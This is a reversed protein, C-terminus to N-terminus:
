RAPVQSNGRSTTIRSRDGPPILTTLGFHETRGDRLAPRQATRCPLAVEQGPTFGAKGIAETILDLAARNHELDQAFGGEDGIGASPGHQKIVSKLARYM